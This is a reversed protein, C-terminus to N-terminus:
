TPWGFARKIEVFVAREAPAFEGDALFVHPCLTVARTKNETTALRGAIDDLALKRTEASNVAAQARELSRAAFLDFKIAPEWNFTTVEQVIAESEVPLLRHDACM